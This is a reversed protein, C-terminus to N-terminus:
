YQQVACDNGREFARARDAAVDPKEARTSNDDPRVSDKVDASDKEGGRVQGVAEAGALVAKGCEEGRRVRVRRDLDLVARLDIGVIVVHRHDRRPDLLSPRDVYVAGGGIGRGLLERHREILAEEVDRDIEAGVIGVTNNVSSRRGARAIDRGVIVMRDVHDSNRLVVREGHEQVAAPNAEGGDVSSRDLVAPDNKGRAVSDAVVVAIIDNDVSQVETARNVTRVCADVNLAAVERRVDGAIRSARDLRGTASARQVEIM